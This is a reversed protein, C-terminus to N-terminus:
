LYPEICLKIFICYYCKNMYLFLENVRM